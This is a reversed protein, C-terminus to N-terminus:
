VAPGVLEPPLHQVRCPRCRVMGGAVSQEGPRSSPELAAPHRRVVRRCLYLSDRVPLHRRALNGHGAIGPDASRRGICGSAPEAWFPLYRVWGLFFKSWVPGAPGAPGVPIILQRKAPAPGAPAPGRRLLAIATKM